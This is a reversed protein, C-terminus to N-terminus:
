AHQCIKKEVIPRAQIKAGQATNRLNSDRRCTQLGGVSHTDLLSNSKIIHTADLSLIDKPRKRVRVKVVGQALKAYSM